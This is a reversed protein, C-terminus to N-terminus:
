VTLGLSVFIDHVVFSRGCSTSTKFELNERFRNLSRAAVQLFRGVRSRVQSVVIIDALKSDSGFTLTMVPEFIWLRDFSLAEVSDPIDIVGPYNPPLDLLERLHSPSSFTLSSLSKCGLFCCPDVFEVSAPLALSKLSTCWSFALEGIRVIHSDTPLPSIELRACGYFCADGLAEVSSPLGICELLQCDVFAHTPISELM